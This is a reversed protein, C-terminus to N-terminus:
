QERIAGAASRSRRFDTHPVDALRQDNTYAHVTNIFGNTIGFADNLVKAMPALCNTTCSANSVIRHAPKLGDDNVGLVVTYDIADKAPVTLVVRAAGAGIHRQLDARTRFVGTSEVVADVGLSAWPLGDLDRVSLMRTEGHDARLVDGDLELSGKFPGMVTDYRLLYVLSAADFLDNIAVVEIDNGLLGKEVLSRFVLRGIRGFGNIGIKTAM